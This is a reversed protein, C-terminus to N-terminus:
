LEETVKKWNKRSKKELEETVKKELEETVQLKFEDLFLLKTAVWLSAGESFFLKRESAGIFLYPSVLM